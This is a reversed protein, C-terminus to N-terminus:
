CGCVKAKFRLVVPIPEKEKLLEELVIVSIVFSFLKLYCYKIQTGSFRLGNFFYNVCM